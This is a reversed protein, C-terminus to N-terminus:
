PAAEVLRALVECVHLAPGRQGREMDSVYTVSVGAADAVDRQTLGAGQRAGAMMATVVERATVMREEADRLASVAAAWGRNGDAGVDWIFPFPLVPDFQRATLDVVVGGFAAVTHPEETGVSAPYRASRFRRSLGVTCGFLGQTAAFSVLDDSADACLGAGYNAAEDTAIVAWDPFAALFAAVVREVSGAHERVCDEPPATVGM